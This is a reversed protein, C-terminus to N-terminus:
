GGGSPPSMGGFSAPWCCRRGSFGNVCNNSASNPFRQDCRTRLLCRLQRRSPRAGHKSVRGCLDATASKHILNGIDRLRSM